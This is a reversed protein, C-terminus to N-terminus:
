YCVSDRSAFDEVEYRNCLEEYLDITVDDSEDENCASQSGNYWKDCYQKWTMCGDNYAQEDLEMNLAPACIFSNDDIFFNVQCDPFVNRFVQHNAQVTEFNSSVKIQSDIEVKGTLQDIVKIKINM